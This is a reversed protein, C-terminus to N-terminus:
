KGRPKMEQGRAIIGAGGGADEEAIEVIGPGRTM